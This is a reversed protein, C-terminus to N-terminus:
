QARQRPEPDDARPLGGTAWWWRRDRLGEHLGSLVLPESGGSDGESEPRPLRAEKVKLGANRAERRRGKGEAEHRPRVLLALRQRGSLASCRGPASGRSLEGSSTQDERNHVAVALENWDAAHCPQIYRACESCARLRLDRLLAPGDDPQWQSGPQLHYTPNREECLPGTAPM